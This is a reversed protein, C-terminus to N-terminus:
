QILATEGADLNDGKHLNFVYSEPASIHCEGSGIMLALVAGPEPEAGDIKIFRSATFSFSIGHKELILNQDEWRCGSGPYRIEVPDLWHKKIWLRRVGGQVKEGKCSGSIPSYIVESQPSLIRNRYRYSLFNKIYLALGSLTLAYSLYKIFGHNQLLASLIFSVIILGLPLIQQRYQM